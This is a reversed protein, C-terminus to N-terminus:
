PPSCRTRAPSVAKARRAQSRAEELVARLNRAQQRGETAQRRAGQLVREHAPIAAISLAATEQQAAPRRQEYSQVRDARLAERHRQLSRDRSATERQFEM